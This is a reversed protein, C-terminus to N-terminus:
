YSDKLSILFRPHLDRSECDLGNRDGCMIILKGCITKLIWIASESFLKCCRDWMGLCDKSIRFIIVARNSLFYEWKYFWSCTALCVAMSGCLYCLNKEERKENEMIRMKNGEDQKSKSTKGINMDMVHEENM